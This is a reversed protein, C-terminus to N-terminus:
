ARRCQEDTVLDGGWEISQDETMGSETMILYWIGYGVGPAVGPTRSTLMDVYLRVLTRVASSPVYTTEFTEMTV